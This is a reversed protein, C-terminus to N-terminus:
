VEVDVKTFLNTKVGEGRFLMSKFLEFGKMNFFVVFIQPRFEFFAKGTTRANKTYSVSIHSIM